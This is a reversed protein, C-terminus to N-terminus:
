RLMMDFSAETIKLFWSPEYNKCNNLSQRDTVFNFYTTHM